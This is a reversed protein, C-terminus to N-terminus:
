RSEEPVTVLGIRDIGSNKVLAMAKAVFSYPLSGDARIFIEKRERKSYFKTLTSTLQSLPVVERNLYIEQNKKLTLTVPESSKPMSKAASKPLEIPIGTELLPAAVMFVILLVLMVDVFPTINIESLPAFDDQGSQFLGGAM